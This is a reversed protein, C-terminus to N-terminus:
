APPVALGTIVIGGGPAIRYEARKRPAPRWHAYRGTLHVIKQNASALYPHSSPLHKEYPGAILMDTASLLRDWQQKGGALLEDHSYGTFILVGKGARQVAEAVLALAEAQALPEGGSFTVGEVEPVALLRETVEDPPMRAGGVPDQFDPNCCGPCRRPCGQLWLVARIGPGNVLSRPLIAAVALSPAPVAAKHHKHQKRM